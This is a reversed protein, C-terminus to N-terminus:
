FKKHSFLVKKYVDLTREALKDSSYNRKVKELGAKGMKTRRNHGAKVMNEFANALAEPNGPPVLWGNKENEVLTSVDGVDTAVVPKGEAFSELVVNPLGERRSTLALVDMSQYVIKIERMEPLLFFSKSLKLQRIKETVKPLLNHKRASGIWVIKIRSVIKDPLRKLADLLLFPDKEPSLRAVVGVLIQNHNTIYEARFNDARCRIDETMETIAIGNPVLYIRGHWKPILQKVYEKIAEANTIMADGRKAMLKELLFRLRSHDLDTSRESIIIRTNPCMVSVGRALLGPTGLYSHVIDFKGKLVLKALRITVRPDRAGSKGLIIIPVGIKELDPRFHWFPRYVAVTPKIVRQDLASLLTTLQRQAGGSALTDILYLIRIPSFPFNTTYQDM